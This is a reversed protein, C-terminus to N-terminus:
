SKTALTPEHIVYRLVELDPFFKGCGEWQCFFTEIDHPRKSITEPGPRPSHDHRKRKLSGSMMTQVTPEPLPPSVTMPTSISESILGPFNPSSAGTTYSFPTRAQSLPPPSDFNEPFTSLSLEDLTGLFNFTHSPSGDHLFSNPDLYSSSSTFPDDWPDGSDLQWDSPEFPPLHLPVPHSRLLEISTPSYASSPNSPQDINCSGDTVPFLPLSQFLERHAHCYCCCPAVVYDQSLGGSITDNVV